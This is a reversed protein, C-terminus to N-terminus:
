WPKFNRDYRANHVTEGDPEVIVLLYKDAKPAFVWRQTRNKHGPRTMVPNTVAKQILDALELLYPRRSLVSERFYSTAKFAAVM